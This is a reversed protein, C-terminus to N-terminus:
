RILRFLWRFILFAVLIICGYFIAAHHFIFAFLSYFFLSVYDLPRRFQEPISTKTQVEGKDTLTVSTGKKVEEPNDLRTKVRIQDDTFTEANDARFNDVSQFFPTSKTKEVVYDDARTIVKDASDGLSPAENKSDSTAATKGSPQVVVKKQIFRKDVDTTANVLVVPQTKGDLAMKPSIIKASIKHDGATVKWSISIDSAAGKALSFTKTGLVVSEDYFDVTGSFVGPGPNFLFTYIRVTDGEVFPDKSYWIPNQVFGINVPTAETAGVSFPSM